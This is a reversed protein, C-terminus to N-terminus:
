QHEHNNEKKFYNTLDGNIKQMIERLTHHKYVACNKAYNDCIFCRRPSSGINERSIKQFLSNYIDFDWYCSLAHNDEAYLLLKKLAIPQYNVTYFYVIFGKDLNIWTKYFQIKNQMLQQKLYANAINALVIAEWTFKNPGPINITLQLCTNDPCYSKRLTALSERLLLIDKM